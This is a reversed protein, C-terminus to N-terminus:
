WRGRFGTRWQGDGIRQACGVAPKTTHKALLLSGLPAAPDRASQYAGTTPCSVGVRWSVGPEDLSRAVLELLLEMAEGSPDAPVSLDDSSPPNCSPPGVPQCSLTSFPLCAHTALTVTPVAPQLHGSSRHTM